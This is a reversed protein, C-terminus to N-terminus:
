FAAALDKAGQLQSEADMKADTAAILRAVTNNRIAVPNREYGTRHFFNSTPIQDRMAAPMSIMDFGNGDGTLNMMELEAASLERSFGKKRAFIVSDLLKQTQLLPGVDVDLNMAHIGLGRPTNAITEHESWDDPVSRAFAIMASVVAIKDNLAARATDDLSTAKHRLEALFKDGSEALLEVSNTNLLQNYGLATSVARADPRDYELGAQVDYKGDGGSEFAYVRVAQNRTLGAAAAVRAYAKKFEIESRPRNPAFHFQELANALFDPVIPISARAVPPTQAPELSPEVPKPPGDYAPPQALVYDDAVIAEGNRRKTNRLQRKDGVLVWYPQALAEYRQLATQYEALRSQYDAAVQPTSLPQAAAAVSPAPITTACGLAILARFAAALFRASTMSMGEEYL